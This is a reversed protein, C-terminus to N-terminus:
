SDTYKIHCYVVSWLKHIEPTSFKQIPSVSGGGPDAM